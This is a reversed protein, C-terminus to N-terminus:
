SNQDHFVTPGVGVERRREELPRVGAGILDILSCAHVVGRVPQLPAVDVDHQQVQTQRVDGAWLADRM